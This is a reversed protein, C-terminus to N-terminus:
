MSYVMFCTGVTKNNDFFIKLVFM